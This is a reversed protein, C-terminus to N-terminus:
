SCNGDLVHERKRLRTPHRSQPNSIRYAFRRRKIEIWGGLSLDLASPKRYKSNSSRLSSQRKNMPSNISSASSNLGADRLATFAGPTANLNIPRNPRLTVIASFVLPPMM